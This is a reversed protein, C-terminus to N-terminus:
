LCGIQVALDPNNAIVRAKVYALYEDPAGHERLGAIIHSAYEISTRRGPEPNVVTYTIIEGAVRTGDPRQVRIPRRGYHRGEIADLSKREGATGRQILYDPVEYLVGWIPRGRGELIDATACANGTSWVDFDLEFPAEMCVLGLDRADGRLRENSNLRTSSTNSGYQFVLAM